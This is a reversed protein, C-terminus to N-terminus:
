GAMQKTQVRWGPSADEFRQLIENPAHRAQQVIAAADLAGARATFNAIDGGFHLSAADAPVRPGFVLAPAVARSVRTGSAVQRGNAYLTLRAGQAVAAIQTWTGVPLAQKSRLVADGQAFGLRGNDIVFFRGDGHADGLGAIRVTGPVDMAPRVWGSVSWDADAALMPADAALTKSLGVGGALVRVDYPGPPDVKAPAAEVATWGVCGCLLWLAGRRFAKRVMLM